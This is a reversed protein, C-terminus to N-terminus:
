VPFWKDPGLIIYNRFKSLFFLHTKNLAFHVFIARFNLFLTIKRVKNRHSYYWGSVVYKTGVYSLLSFQVFLIGLKNQAFHIFITRFNLLITIKHFKSSSLLIFWFGKIQDWSLIIVFNLGFFHARITKPLTCSFQM